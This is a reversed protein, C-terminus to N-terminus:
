ILINIGDFRPATFVILAREGINTRKDIPNIIIGVSKKM